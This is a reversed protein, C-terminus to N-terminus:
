SDSNLLNKMFCAPHFGVYKPDVEQMRIVSIRLHHHFLRSFRGRDSGSHSSGLCMMAILLLPPCIYMDFTPLHLVPFRPQIYQIYLRLFFDLAESPPFIADSIEPRSIENRGYNSGNLTGLLVQRLGDNIQQMPRTTAASLGSARAEEIVPQWFVPILHRPVIRPVRNQPTTPGSVKDPWDNTDEDEADEVDIPNANHNYQLPPYPYPNLPFDDFTNMDTDLSYSPSSESQFSNLTWSIDGDYSGMYTNTNDGFLMFGDWLSPNINDIPIFSQQPALAAEVLSSLGQPHASGHQIISPNPASTLISQYGQQAPLNQNTYYGHPQHVQQHYSAAPSHTSLSASGEQSSLSGRSDRQILNDFRPDANPPSVSGQESPTVHSRAKSSEAQSDHIRRHRNLLDSRTFRKRCVVCVFKGM